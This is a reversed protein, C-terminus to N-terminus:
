RSDEEAQKARIIALADEVHAPSSGSIYEIALPNGALFHCLLESWEDVEVRGNIKFLKRSRAKLHSRSKANHNFDSDRRQRYEEESLYQIAGDFHRFAGESIDFETHVYRAPHYTRCQYDMTVADSKLELAQFSKVTSGM